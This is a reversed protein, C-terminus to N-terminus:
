KITNLINFFKVIDRDPESKGGWSGMIQKGKILDHPKLKIKENEKPHSAFFLKGTKYKILEFGLEIIKSSGSFELCLDFFNMYEKQIKLKNKKTIHLFNAEM